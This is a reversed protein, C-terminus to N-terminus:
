EKHYTGGLVKFLLIQNKLISLRTDNIKIQIDILNLEKELLTSVEVIGNQQRRKQFMYEKTRNNLEDKYISYINELEIREMLTSEVEFFANLVTKQYELISKYFSQEKQKENYKLKGMNFLPFLLSSSIAWIRSEPKILTNLEDSIYGINGSLNISPFRIARAYGLNSLKQKLNLIAKKIDPRRKLLDSPLTKPISLSKIDITIDSVKINGTYPYDGVLNNIKQEIYKKQKILNEFIVKTELLLNKYYQYTFFDTLGIKYRTSYIKNLKNLLKIKKDYLALKRNLTMLDFYNEICTSIISLVLINADEKSKLFELRSAQKEFYIKKWLDLEYSAVISTNFSNTINVITIEKGTPTKTKYSQRQRTVQGQLDITPYSHTKTKLFEYKLEEITKKAIKLDLNRKLTRAVLINLNPDHLTKYWNILSSNSEMNIANQFSKPISLNTLNSYRAPNIPNCGYCFFFFYVIFYGVIKNKM